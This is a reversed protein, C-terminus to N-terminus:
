RTSPTYGHDKCIKLINPLADGNGAANVHFVRSTQKTIESNDPHTYAVGAVDGRGSSDCASRDNATLPAAGCGFLTLTTLVAASTTAFRATIPKSVTAAIQYM